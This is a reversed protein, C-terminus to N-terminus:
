SNFLDDLPITSLVDVVFHASFLYRYAIEDVQLNEEGDPEFFSTRFNLLIDVIFTLDILSDITKM